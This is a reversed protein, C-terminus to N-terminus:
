STERGKDTMRLPTLGRVCDFSRGAPPLWLSRGPQLKSQQDAEAEPPLLDKSQTRPSVASLIVSSSPAAFM